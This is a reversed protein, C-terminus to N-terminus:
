LGRAQPSAPWAVPPQGALQDVVQGLYWHRYAVLEPPTALTLLHQGQRCYEDAEDIIDGLAVSAASAEPPLELVHDELREAGADIADELRQDAESNIGAFQATLTDVLAMLRAPVHQDDNSSSAILMFERSLGEFHERAAAALPVPLELLHVQVAASV